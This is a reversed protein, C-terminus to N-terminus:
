GSDRNLARKKVCYKTPKMFAINLYVSIYHIEMMTVGLVEAKRRGRGSTAVTLCAGNKFSM